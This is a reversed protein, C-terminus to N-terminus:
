QNEEEAAPPEASAPWVDRVLRMALDEGILVSLLEIFNAVISIAAEKLADEDRLAELGALTGGPGATVGELVAHARRALVLSRAVMVDFGAAGILDGLERNLRMM